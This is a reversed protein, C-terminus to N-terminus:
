AIFPWSFRAMWCASIRGAELQDEFFVSAIKWCSFTGRMQVRQIRGDACSRISKDLVPLTIRQATKISISSSQDIWVSTLNLISHCPVSASWSTWIRASSARRIFVNSAPSTLPSSSLSPRSPDCCDKEKRENKKEEAEVRALRSRFFPSVFSDSPTTTAWLCKEIFSQYCRHVATLAKEDFPSYGSLAFGCIGRHKKRPKNTKRPRYLHVLKMLVFPCVCACVCVCLVYVWRDCILSFCISSHM